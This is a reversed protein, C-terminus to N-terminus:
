TKTFKPRRGKSFAPPAQVVENFEYHDVWTDLNVGDDSQEKSKKKKKREKLKQARERRKETKRSKRVEIPDVHIKGQSTYKVEKGTKTSLIKPRVREPKPCFDVNFKAEVKAESRAKSAMKSLRHLFQSDSEYPGQQTVTPVYKVGRTHGEDDGDLESRIALLGPTKTRSKKPDKKKIAISEERLRM